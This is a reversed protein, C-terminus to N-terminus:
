NLGRNRIGTNGYPGGPCARVCSDPRAGDVVSFATADNTFEIKEWDNYGTTQELCSCLWHFALHLIVDRQFQWQRRSKGDLFGDVLM